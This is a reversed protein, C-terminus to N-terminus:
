QLKTAGCLGCQWIHQGDANSMGTDLYTHLGTAPITGSESEGCTSCTRKKTGAAGCTPKKVTTWSGWSHDLKAIATYGVIGCITCTSEKQGMETCTPEKTVTWTEFNHGLPNVHNSTYSSGCNRCTYTTYGQETCTPPTVVGSNYSHTGTAPITHYDPCATRTFVPNSWTYRYDYKGAQCTPSSILNYTGTATETIQHNCKSCTATGYCYDHSSSYTYSTDYNHNETVTRVEGCSSCTETYTHVEPTDDDFTYDDNSLYAHQKCNTYFMRAVGNEDGIYARKVRRAVGAVGIFYDKIRRAVERIETGVQVENVITVIMNYFSCEDSYSDSSSDKSYKFIISQGSKISGSYTKSTTPGSVGNEITVGAVTLTFKDYNKESSYSYSFSIQMDSKAVLETTATSSPEGGNNSVWTGGGEYSFWYESAEYVSFYQYINNLTIDISVPSTDYIPIETEIGIYGERAM